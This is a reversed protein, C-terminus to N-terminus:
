TSLSNGAQEAPQGGGESALHRSVEEEEEGVLEGPVEQPAAGVLGLIVYPPGAM